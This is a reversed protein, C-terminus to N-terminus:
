PQKRDLFSHDPRAAGPDPSSNLYVTIDSAKDIILDADAALLAERGSHGTLVGVTFTGAQRGLLIDIPHDGVMAARGPAIALARLAALLHEPHPKVHATDERALFIQCCREIDPFVTLVAARCNRTVIGTAISRRHLEALLAKTGELLAGEAAAALEVATIRDHARALFLAAEAPRSLATRAAAGDIMELVPLDALGDLPIGFDAMLRQVESKMLCFDINLRALTGDFDFVFADIRHREDAFKM